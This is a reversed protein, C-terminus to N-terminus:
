RSLAIVLKQYILIILFFTFQKKGGEYSDGFKISKWDTPSNRIFINSAKATKFIDLIKLILYIEQM